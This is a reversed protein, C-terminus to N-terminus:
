HWLSDKLCLVPYLVWEAACRTFSTHYNCTYDCISHIYLENYFIFGVKGLYLQSICYTEHM